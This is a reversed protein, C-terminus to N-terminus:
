QVAVYLTQPLTQAELTFTLPVAASSVVNPVVVNFQYLGLTGPALGAYTVTALQDGFNVTFTRTLNNSTQTVQGANPAPTVAGFGIGYLTITEGVRAPRSSVGSLAAVPMAYTAGDPLLAAAYQKGSIVFSAPALLAPQTDNVVIPYAQSSGTPTNVTVTQPGTPMDSPVQVNVQSPSIYSVYGFRNGIAVSTGELVQPAITGTFDSAKWSQTTTALAVGYIELWTGPAVGKGSGFAAAPAVGRSAISPSLAGPTLMRIVNNGTDTFLINGSKDFALGYPLNLSAQLAGYNDGSYGARGNGAVTTIIGDTGVRRIRNNSYDSIYLVGTSDVIVDRPSNLMAQTALGYDGSFGATGNGAVTTVLGGDKTIKRIVNNGSDAVYMNGSADFTMSQPANFTAVLSNYGDGSYAAVGTGAFTSMTTGAVKRIRHNDTDAIYLNGASDLAVAGPRNLHYSTATGEGDYGSTNNGAFTSINGGSVKRIVHNDTDAIYYNGSSDVAVGSPHSLSASTAAKSDGLYGSTASGAVTNISTGTIQRIRNNGQDCIWITGSGDIVIHTPNTFEATTVAAADGAFGRTGDGAVTSITFGVQAQSLCLSLPGLVVLRNLITFM